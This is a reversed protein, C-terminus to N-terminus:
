EVTLHYRGKCRYTSLFDARRTFGLTATNGDFVPDGSQVADLNTTIWTGMQALQEDTAQGYIDITNGTNVPPLPQIFLAPRPNAYTVVGDVLGAPHLNPAYVISASNSSGVYPLYNMLQITQSTAPVGTITWTLPVASDLWVEDLHGTNHTLLTGSGISVQIRINGQPLHVHISEQRDSANSKDYNYVLNTMKTVPDIAFVKIMSDPKDWDGPVWVKLTYDGEVPAFFGYDRERIHDAVVVANYLIEAGAIMLGWPGALWQVSGENLILTLVGDALLVDIQHGVSPDDFTGSCLLNSFAASALINTINRTATGTGDVNGLDRFGLRMKRASVTADALIVLEARKDPRADVQYIQSTLANPTALLLLTLAFSYGRTM